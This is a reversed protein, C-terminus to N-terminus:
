QDSIPAVINQGTSGAIVLEKTVILNAITDLGAIVHEIATLAVVEDYATRVVIGHDAAAFAVPHV